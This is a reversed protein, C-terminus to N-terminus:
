FLELHELVETAIEIAEIRIYAEEDNLLDMLEPVYVSSFRPCKIIGDLSLYEKLFHVGSMRIKYNNDHCIGM